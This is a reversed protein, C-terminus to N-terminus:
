IKRRTFANVKIAAKRPRLNVNPMYIQEIFNRHGSLRATSLATSWNERGAIDGYPISIKFAAEPPACFNRWRFSAFFKKENV